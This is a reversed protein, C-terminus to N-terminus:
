DYGHRGAARASIDGDGCFGGLHRKLCLLGLLEGASDVVALRRVGNALMADRATDVSADPLVTRGASTAYPLVLALARAHAPLDERVVTGVLRRDEVLLLMHVHDDSFAERCEGVTLAPGHIKPVHVMFGEVTQAASLNRRRIINM